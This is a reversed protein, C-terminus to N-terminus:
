RRRTRVEVAPRRVRAPRASRRRRRRPHRHQDRSRRALPRPRRRRARTGAPSAPAVPQGRRECGRAVLVVRAFMRPARRHDSRRRRVVLGAAARVNPVEARLRDLTAQQAPGRLDREASDCSAALWHVLRLRAADRENPDRDLCEVAFARLSDLMRYSDDGDVVLLSRDIMSSLLDLPHADLGSAAVDAAAAYTFRGAFVGLRDFFVRQEDDLLDYSWAIATRLSRQRVDAARGVRNLLAFRDDLHRLIAGPSLVRVRAAALEIALPLGDLIRCIRAVDGAHAVDLDFDPHVARGRDVFLRVAEADRVQEFSGDVPPLALPRLPWAVEGPLAMPQRSTALIHLEPCGRLLGHSTEACADLLHECTDLVLLGPEGGIRLQVAESPDTADTVGVARAVEYPVVAPDDVEALEVLWVPREHAVREAVGLALRTKGIGGPGTLTLMRNDTLLEVIRAMEQERGILRTTSAPLRTPRVTPPTSTVAPPAATTWDLEPDQALVAQHLLQLERGPEVGLEEVLHARAADYARLADAQRGCRYLALMLQTRLRERLPHDAVLQHLMPVVQEHDGLLLRADVQYELAAARLEHLREVAAVAFPQYAVDQLPEGRWLGLAAGLEERALEADVTSATRLRDAASSVGREFRHLDISEAPVRLMYGAGVTRLEGDGATLRLVRRLYSVQVQLANAADTPLRDGWVHEVLVDVPVVQGARLLLSILVVRSRGRRVALVDGDRRVELPGLM